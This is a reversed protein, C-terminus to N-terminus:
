RVSLDNATPQYLAHFVQRVDYVGTHKMFCRVEATATRKFLAIHSEDYWLSEKTSEEFLETRNPVLYWVDSTFTVKKTTEPQESGLSTETQESYIEVNSPPSDVAGMSKVFLDYSKSFCNCIFYEM